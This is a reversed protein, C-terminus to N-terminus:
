FDCAKLQHLNQRNPVVSVHSGAEFGRQYFAFFHCHQRSAGNLQIFVLGVSFPLNLGMHENPFLSSM